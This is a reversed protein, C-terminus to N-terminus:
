GICSKASQNDYETKPITGLVSRALATFKKIYSVIFINIRRETIIKMTDIIREYKGGSFIRDMNDCLFLYTPLTKAENNPIIVGNQEHEAM